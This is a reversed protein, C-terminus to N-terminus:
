NFFNSDVPYIMESSYNRPRATQSIWKSLFQDQWDRAKLTETVHNLIVFRLPKASEIWGALTSSNKLTGTKAAISEKLPLDNLFREKLSGLDTGVAVFEDINLKLNSAKIELARLLKLISQCSALNDLRTQGSIVPLGSGNNLTIETPLIGYKAFVKLPDTVKKSEEWLVNAVMNKSMMNMAKLITVLPKSQHTHLSSGALNMLPNVNVFKVNSTPIGAAPLSYNIGEEEQFKKVSLLREKAIAGFKGTPNFYHILANSVLTSSVPTHQGQPMDTFVFRSDFTLEKIKTLGLAKLNEILSFIKEEEFWPDFDGAIHVRDNNIWVTTTWTKEPGLSELSSLTTFLKTLSALRQKAENRYGGAEGQNNEWCFAQNTIPGLSSPFQSKFLEVPGSWAKFSLLLTFLLATKM